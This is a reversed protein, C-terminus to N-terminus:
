ATCRETKRDKMRKGHKRKKSQPIGEGDRSNQIAKRIGHEM